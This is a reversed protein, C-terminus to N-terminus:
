ISSPPLLWPFILLPPDIPIGTMFEGFLIIPIGSPIPIYITITLHKRFSMTPSHQLVLCSM